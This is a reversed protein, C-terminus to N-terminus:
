FNCNFSHTLNTVSAMEVTWTLQAGALGVTLNVLDWTTLKKDKGEGRPSREVQGDEDNGSLSEVQSVQRNHSKFLTPSGGLISRKSQSLPSSSPSQQSFLDNFSEYTQPTRRPTSTTSSTM